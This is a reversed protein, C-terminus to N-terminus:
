ATIFLAATDIDAGQETALRVTIIIPAYGM